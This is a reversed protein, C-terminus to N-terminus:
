PQSRPPRRCLLRGATPRPRAGVKKVPDPLDPYIAFLSVAGEADGTASLRGRGPQLERLRQEITPSAVAVAALLLGLSESAM